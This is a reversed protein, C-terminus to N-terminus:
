STSPKKIYSINTILFLIILFLLSKIIIKYFISQQAPIYISELLTDFLPLSFIIFILTCLLIDRNSGFTKQVVEKNKDITIYTNLLAEDEPISPSDDVPLNSIKDAM